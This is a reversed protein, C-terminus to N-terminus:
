VARRQSFRCSRRSSRDHRPRADGIQDTASEQKKAETSLVYALADTFQGDFRTAATSCNRLALLSSLCKLKVSWSDTGDGYAVIEFGERKLDRVARM